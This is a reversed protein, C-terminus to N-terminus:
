KVTLETTDPGSIDKIRKRKFFGLKWLVAAAGGLLLVGGLVSLFIVWWPTKKKQAETQAPKATTIVTTKDNSEDPQTIESPVKIKASTVLDVAEPPDLEKLLTNDWLRFTLKIDVKDNTKLQGLSCSFQNCSATRCDLLKNETDRRKRSQQNDTQSSDNSAKIDLPNVKANCSGSAGELEVLLLYLLYSKPKSSQYLAPFTVTVVSGDVASPGKNRISLTQIVEPGISDLSETVEEYDREPGKYVVQGHKSIGKIEVDAEFKVGVSFVKKNDKGYADKDQSSALVEMTFSKKVSGPSFKIGFKISSKGSLPNGVNCTLTATGNDPESRECEVPQIPGIYDLDAPHKLTIRSYYASDEVKNTVNLMVTFDKVVGIRVEKLDGPSYLMYGDVALDPVCALENKCKKKFAVTSRYSNPRYDNLVPCLGTCGTQPLSVTLDFTLLSGVDAVEDKKLLYVTVPKLDDYIRKKQITHDDELIFTKKKNAADWFFMRRLADSEKGKDLEVTYKMKLAQNASTEVQDWYFFRLTMNLCKHKDGDLDCLSDNSELTIQSKSLIIAGNMNVIRRTRMIVANESGYAGVAIDPYKNGDVDVGGSISLGFMKLGAKVKSALIKQRYQTEVGKSSGHYIYVAGSDDEGPAGIAVDDFGDQNLDGVAAIAEGFRANLKKDGELVKDQLNLAGQKNNLYIYVRGEDLIHTYYPAGVLVDTYEDSDLDVACVVSGFYTATPIDKPQPLQSKVFIQLQDDSVDYILVKGKLESGRPAGGVLETRSPSSFHGSTVSYGMYNGFDIQDQPSLAYNVPSSGSTSASTLVLGGRWRRAGVTGMVVDYGDVTFEASFGAQCYGYYNNGKSEKFCPDRAQGTVRTLDGTLLFCRGLLWRYQLDGDPNPPLGRYIYRSACTLAKGDKGTSRVTGGLWQGSKEELKVTVQQNNLVSQRTEEPINDVPIFTCSQSAYECKYVAGYRPLTQSSSTVNSLPAGVIVWYKNQHSHLAVSYGFYESGVPGDFVEASGIDVNFCYIGVCELLCIFAILLARM